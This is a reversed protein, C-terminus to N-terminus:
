YQDYEDEYEYRAHARGLFAIGRQTEPSCPPLDYLIDGVHETHGHEAARRQPACRRRTLSKRKERYQANAQQKRRQEEEIRERDMVALGELFEVDDNTLNSERISFNALGCAIRFDEDFNHDSLEYAYAWRTFKRKLRGFFQEVPVRIKSLDRRLLSTPLCSRM